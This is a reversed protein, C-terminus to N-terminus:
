IYIYIKHSSLLILHAYTHSEFQVKTRQCFTLAAGEESHPSKNKPSHFIPQMHLKDLQQINGPVQELETGGRKKKWNRPSSIYIYIYISVLFKVATFPILIEHSKLNLTICIADLERWKGNGVWKLWTPSASSSIFQLPSKANQSHQNSSRPSLRRIATGQLSTTRYAKLQICVIYTHIPIM